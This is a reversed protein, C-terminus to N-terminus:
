ACALDEVVLTRSDDRIKYVGELALGRKTSEISNSSSGPDTQYQATEIQVNLLRARPDTKPTVTGL